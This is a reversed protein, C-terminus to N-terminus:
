GFFALLFNMIMVLRDFFVSPSVQVSQGGGFAQDTATKLGGAMQQFINNAALVPAAQIAFFAGLLAFGFLYKLYSKKM